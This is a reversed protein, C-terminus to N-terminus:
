LIDYQSKFLQKAKTNKFRQVITSVWLGNGTVLLVVPALSSFNDYTDFYNSGSHHVGHVINVINIVLSLILLINIGTMSWHSKNRDNEFISLFVIGLILLSVIILFQILNILIAANGPTYHGAAWGYGTAILIIAAYRTKFFKTTM